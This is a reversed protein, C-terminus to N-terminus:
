KDVATGNASLHCPLENALMKSAPLALTLVLVVVLIVASSTM